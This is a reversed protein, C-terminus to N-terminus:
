TKGNEEERMQDLLARLRGEFDSSKVPWILQKQDITLDKGYMSAKVLAPTMATYQKPNPQDPCITIKYPLEAM